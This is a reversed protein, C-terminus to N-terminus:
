KIWTFASGASLARPEALLTLEHRPEAPLILEARPSQFPNIVESM